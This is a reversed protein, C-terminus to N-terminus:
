AFSYTLHTYKDWSVNALPFAPDSNAHWGAYWAAAVMDVSADRSQFSYPFSSARAVASVALLTLSLLPLM